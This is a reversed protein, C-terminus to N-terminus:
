VSAKRETASTGREGESSYEWVHTHVKHAAGCAPCAFTMGLKLTGVALPVDGDCSACRATLFDHIFEPTGDAHVKVQHEVGCHICAAKGSSTAVRANTISRQQCGFCDFHFLEAMHGSFGSAVPPDLLSIVDQLTRRLTDYRSRLAGPNSQMKLTPVHLFSGLRDYHKNVVALSLAKHQGELVVRGPTGDGTQERIRTVRDSASGPELELLARMMIRPQWTELLTAPVRDQYERLKAYALAEMCFRLELCAYRLDPDAGRQLAEKARGLCARKDLGLEM